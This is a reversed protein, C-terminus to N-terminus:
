HYCMSNALCTSICVTTTVEHQKRYADATSLYATDASGAFPPRMLANDSYPPGAHGYMNHMAHGAINNFGGGHGPIVNPRPQGSM